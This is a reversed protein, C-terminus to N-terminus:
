ANNELKPPCIMPFYTIDYYILSKIINQSHTFNVLKAQRKIHQDENAGVFLPLESPIPVLAPASEARSQPSQASEARSQRSEARGLDAPASAISGDQSDSYEDTPEM